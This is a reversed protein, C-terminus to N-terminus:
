RYVQHDKHWGRDFCHKLEHGLVAMETVSTEADFDPSYIKCGTPTYTSCGYIRGYVLVSKSMGRCVEHIKDAPTKIWEVTVGIPAPLACGALLLALLSFM